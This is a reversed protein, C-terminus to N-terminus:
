NLSEMLRPDVSVSERDKKVEHVMAEIIVNLQQDTVSIHNENLFARVVGVVYAKKQMWEEVPYIQEACKVALNIYYIVQDMQQDSVLTKIYPIVYYSVLAGIITIVALIIQTFVKGEM